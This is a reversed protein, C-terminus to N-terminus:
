KKKAARLEAAKTDLKKKLDERVDETVNAKNRVSKEGKWQAELADADTAAERYADAFAVYEAETKITAPDTPAAKADDKKTAEAKTTGTKTEEPKTSGEAAGPESAKPSGAEGPAAQSTATTDPKQSQAPQDKNAGENAAFESLGSQATEETAEGDVQKDSVPFTEDVTAMGDAIAKMMAIVSAIDPALWEKATRGIVREVRILEVPMKAIGDITRNRWREIDTGIKDVLSNRASDFAFDSYTQLANVIVNRIAKSVGIQLAIDRQRDADGGVTKQNKRQQFPRTMAFGTEYDSFRAYIIWSDGVDVVRTDIDCNGYIRALDNALRISAGEIWDRGGDKKKVPFRYFWDSGAASGLAQLKTLIKQEDRYVAVPQAGFARDQQFTAPLQNGSITPQLSPDAFKDLAARREARDDLDTKKTADNM